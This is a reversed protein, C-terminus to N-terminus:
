NGDQRLRKEYLKVMKDYENPVNELYEWGFKEFFGDLETFLYLKAYGLEKAQECAHMTLRKAYGRGRHVPLVFLGGLWPSIDQCSQLDCRWLSVTGVIEDGELAAFTQPIDRDNVSRGIWYEWYKRNNPQGWESWMWGSITQLLSSKPTLREITM